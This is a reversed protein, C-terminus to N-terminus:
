DDMLILDFGGGADGSGTFSQASIKITSGAPCELPVAFTRYANAAIDLVMADQFLFVGAQLTRDDRDIDARLRFDIKFTVASCHWGMIYGMKGNPIKYRASLSQNGGAAIQEYIIVGTAVDRIQVNGEAVTNSGVTVTHIWQIDYVMTGINVATTGDLTKTLSQSDGSADLYDIKVTLAGTATAGNDADDDSVIEINTGNPQLMVGSGSQTIDELSATGVGDKRGPITLGRHGPVSGRAVQFADPTRRSRGM